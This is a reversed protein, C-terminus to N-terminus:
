RKRAPYADRIADEHYAAEGCFLGPAPPAHDAARRAAERRGLAAVRERTPFAYITATTRASGHPATTIM